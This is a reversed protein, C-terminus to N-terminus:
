KTRPCGCIATVINQLASKHGGPELIHSAETAVHPPPTDNAPIDEAAPKTFTDMPGDATEEEAEESKYEAPNKVAAKPTLTTEMPAESTVETPPAADTTMNHDPPVMPKESKAKATLETTMVELEKISEGAAKKMYTLADIPGESQSSAPTSAESPKAKKKEM